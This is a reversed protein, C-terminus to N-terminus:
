NSQLLLQLLAPLWRIDQVKVAFTTTQAAYTGDGSYTVTINHAGQSLGQLVISVQGNTVWASGLYVGNETLDVTGTAGAAGLNLTITEGTSTVNVISKGISLTIPTQGVSGSVQYQTRNGAPDYSYSGSTGSGPGSQIQVQTLRGLADYTYSVTQTAHVAGSACIWGAGIAILEKSRM